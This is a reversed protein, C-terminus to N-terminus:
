SVAERLAGIRHQVRELDHFHAGVVVRLEDPLAEQLADRFLDLTNELGGQLASLIEARSRAGTLEDHLDLWAPHVPEGPEPVGGHIRFEHDLSASTREFQNSVEALRSSLQADVLLMDAERFGEAGQRCAAVLGALLIRIRQDSIQGHPATAGELPDTRSVAWALWLAGIGILAVPIPNNRIATAVRTPRGEIVDRAVDGVHGTLQGPSLRFEIENLTSDMRARIGRIDSEIDAMSRGSMANAPHDVAHSM